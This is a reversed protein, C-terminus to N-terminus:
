VNLKFTHKWMEQGELCPNARSSGPSQSIALLWMGIMKAPKGSHLSIEQNERDNHPFSPVINITLNHM